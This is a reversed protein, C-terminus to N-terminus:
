RRFAAIPGAHEARAAMRVLRVPVRATVVGLAAGTALLNMLAAALPVALSRFVMMLLLSSVLTVIAVFLPLKATLVDAFDAFVATEGGVLM